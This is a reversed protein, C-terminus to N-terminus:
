IKNSRLVTLMLSEDINFMNFSTIKIAPLALIQLGVNERQFKM